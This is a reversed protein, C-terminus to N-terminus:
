RSEGATTASPPESLGIGRVLEGFRPDAHVPDWRPDVTLWSLWYSRHDYARQLWLFASENDKLGVYVMAVDYPDVYGETLPGQLRTLTSRAEREDGSVASAYALDAQTTSRFYNEPLKLSTRLAAIGNKHEGNLLYSLGIERQAQAFHSDLELVGSYLSIARNYDRRHFALWATMKGVTVSLPEFEQAQKIAHEAEEFRRRLMLQLALMRYAEASRPDLQVAHWLAREAGARDWEYFARIGALSIHGEALEPDLQLAKLAADRAKPMRDHPALDHRIQYCDALGSYAQAYGPDTAIAHNFYEIAKKLGETTRQSWLFRARLYLQYAETNKTDPTKLRAAAGDLLQPVLSAAVQEAISDQIAFIDAAKEDFARAWLPAGDKTRILRVTVRIRDGSRQISGDLVVEAGLQRGAVTPDQDLSAFPRTASIPRVIIGPVRSFRTILTEALGWELWEDRSTAVLPKFPLVVLTRSRSTGPPTRDSRANWAMWGSAALAVAAVIVGTIAAPRTFRWRGPETTAGVHTPQVQPSADPTTQTREAVDVAASTRGHGVTRDVERVPAIFRYGRKPVTEIYEALGKEEGLAKRLTFVHHSLNGEEVFSEPWVLKMLEDKQLLRGRNEVLVRLVEFTKPMLPVPTGERLLLGETPDLQFPGFEYVNPMPGPKTPNVAM